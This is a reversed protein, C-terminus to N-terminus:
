RVVAEPPTFISFTRMGRLRSKDTAAKSRGVIAPGTECTMWDAISAPM